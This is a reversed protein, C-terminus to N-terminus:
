RPWVGEVVDGPFWDRMAAELRDGHAAFEAATTRLRRLKWLGFVVGAGVLVWGILELYPVVARLAFAVGAVGLCGLGGYVAWAKFGAPLVFWLGVSALAGVLILGGLWALRRRLDQRALEDREKEVRGIASDQLELQRALEDRDKRLAKLQEDAAGTSTPAPPRPLAEGAAGTAGHVVAAAAREGCGTVLWIAALLAVALLVLGLDHWPNPRRDRIWPLRV